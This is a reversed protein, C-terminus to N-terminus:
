HYRSCYLEKLGMKIFNLTPMPDDLSLVDDTFPCTLFEKILAPNKTSKIEQFIAIIDIFANRTKIGTKYSMVPNVDGDVSMRYLLYPFDVGSLVAQNVSGWFRPNVEMIVPKGEETLKFEVMAIGHWNYSKLLDVAIKEMGSNRVSVRCTSPGGSIPYERLRKHTFFARLDGHNFLLSVGYGDGKVYEQIIPYNKNNLNFKTITDKFTQILEEPSKAYSLGISSSSKRLKIVAPYDIEKSIKRLSELDDPHYTKPVPFGMDYANKLFISKNNVSDITKYDMFPVATHERFKDLYKTVVYTDESHVPLLVDIHNKKLESILKKVFDQEKIAPDPYTINNGSYKSYSGLSGSKKEASM